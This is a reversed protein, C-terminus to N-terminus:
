SFSFSAVVGSVEEPKQPVDAYGSRSPYKRYYLTMGSFVVMLFFNIIYSTLLIPDSTEYKISGWILWISTSLFWILMTWLSLDYSTGRDYLRKIQPFYGIASFLLGFAGLVQLEIGEKGCSSM